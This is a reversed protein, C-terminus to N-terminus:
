DDPAQTRREVPVDRREYRRDDILHEGCVPRRTQGPRTAHGM